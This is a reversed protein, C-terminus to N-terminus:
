PLVGLAVVVVAMLVLCCVVIAVTEILDAVRANM